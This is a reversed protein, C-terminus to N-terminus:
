EDMLKEWWQRKRPRPLSKMMILKLKKYDSLAKINFFPQRYYKTKLV